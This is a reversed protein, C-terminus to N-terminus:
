SNKPQMEPFQDTIQLHTVTIKDESYYLEFAFVYNENAHINKFRDKPIVNINDYNPYDAFIFVQQAVCFHIEFERYKQRVGNQHLYNGKKKSTGVRDDKLTFIVDQQHMYQIDKIQTAVLGCFQHYNNNKTDLKIRMVYMLENMIPINLYASCYGEKTQKFVANRQSDIGVLCAFHSDKFETKQFNLKMSRQEQTKLLENIQSVRLLKQLNQVLSPSSQVNSKALQNNQPSESNCSSELINNTNSQNSILFGIQSYEELQQTNLTEFTLPQKDQIFANEISIKSFYNKLKYLKLRIERLFQDNCFNFKNSLLKMILDIQPHQSEEFLKEEFNSSYLSSPTFNSQYDHVEEDNDLVFFNIQKISDLIRSQIENPKEFDFLCNMEEHQKIALSLKETNYQIAEYKQQIFEVLRQQSYEDTSNIVLKKFTDLTAIEEYISKVTRSTDCYVGSLYLMQEKHQQIQEKIKKEMEDFFIEIKREIEKKPYKSETESYVKAVKQLINEQDKLPPWKELITKDDAAEVIEKIAILSHTNINESTICKWCKYIQASSPIQECSIAECQYKTHIPCTKYTTPM